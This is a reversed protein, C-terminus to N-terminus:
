MFDKKTWYYNLKSIDPDVFIGKVQIDFKALEMIILEAFIQASEKTIANYDGSYDNLVLQEDKNLYCSGGGVIKSEDLGFRKVVRYHRYTEAVYISLINDLAEVVFLHGAGYPDKGEFKFAKPNIDLGGIRYEINKM